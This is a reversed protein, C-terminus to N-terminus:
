RRFLVLKKPKPLQIKSPNVLTKAIDQYENENFPLSKNETAEIKALEDKNVKTVSM